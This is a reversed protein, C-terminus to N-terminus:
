TSVHNGPQKAPRSIYHQGVFVAAAAPHPPRVGAGGIRGEGSAKDKGEVEDHNDFIGEPKGDNAAGKQDEATKVWILANRLDTVNM